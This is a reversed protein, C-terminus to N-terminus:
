KEGKDYDRLLRETAANISSFDTEDRKFYEIRRAVALLNNPITTGEPVLLYIPKDLYMALGMQILCVPDDRMGDSWLAMFTACDDMKAASGRAVRLLRRDLERDKRM